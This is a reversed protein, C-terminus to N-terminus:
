IVKICKASQYLMKEEHADLKLPITKEIGREGLVVPLSLCVGLNEHYTSLPLVRKQDFIISECMLSVCAAIGYYTAGKCAIIDLAKQRTAQEIAILKEHTIEPFSAIPAGAVHACSWAAFQSDGHEGLVYADVSQEAVGLTHSLVGRLRLSDLLTGTGFIQTRPLGNINQALLTLVDVPNTVMIIITEPNIPQLQEFVSQVVKKNTVLLEARSQGSKQPIGASFIIINAHRAEQMTGVHINSSVSFSLTDSLDLMEGKCRLDNIDVLIIEAALNRLMLAYATTSGVAGAGIIAIKTHKM